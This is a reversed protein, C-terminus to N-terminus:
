GNRVEMLKDHVEAPRKDKCEEYLADPDEVQIELVKLLRDFSARTIQGFRHETTEVLGGVVFARRRQAVM